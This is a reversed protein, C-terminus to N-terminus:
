QHVIATPVPVHRRDLSYLDERVNAIRRAANVTLGLAAVVLPVSVYLWGHAALYVTGGVMGLDVVQMVWFVIRSTRLRARLTTRVNDYDKRFEFGCGDCQWASAEQPLHCKPCATM